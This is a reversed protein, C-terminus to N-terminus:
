EVNGLSLAMIQKCEVNKNMYNCGMQVDDNILAILRNKTVPKSYKWGQVKNIGFELVLSEDRDSEIGEFVIEDSFKRIENILIKISCKFANNNHMANFLSRDLKVCDFRFESLIVLSSNGTSFDDLSFKVSFDNRIETIFAIVENKHKPVISETIEFELNKFFTNKALLKRLDRKFDACVISESSLNISFVIDFLNNVKIFEITKELVMYDLEPIRGCQELYDVFVQPSYNIGNVSLRALAEAGYIKGINLDFKPQYNVDFSKDELAKNIVDKIINRDIYEEVEKSEEYSYYLCNDNLSNAYMAEASAILDLKMNDTIKKVGCNFIVQNKGANIKLMELERDIKALSSGEHFTVFHDGYIRFTKESLSFNNRLIHAFKKIVDNAFEVGELKKINELNAISIYSIYDYKNKKHYMSMLSPNLLKTAPDISVKKYYTYLFFFFLISLAVYSYFDRTRLAIEGEIVSQLTLDRAHNGISIYGTNNSIDILSNLIYLLSNSENNSKPVLFVVSKLALTKAIINLSPDEAFLLRGDLDTSIFADIEGQKFSKIIEDQRSYEIYEASISRLDQPMSKMIGIRKIENVRTNKFLVIRVLGLSKTTFHTELAAPDYLAMKVDNEYSYFCDDDHCDQDILNINYIKEALSKYKTFVLFDNYKDGYFPFLHFNILINVRKGNLSKVTSVSLYQSNITEFSTNDISIIAANIVPLLASSKSKIVAIHSSLETSIPMKLSHYNSIHSSGSVFLSTKNLETISDVLKIPNSLGLSALFVKTLEIWASGKLTVIPLGSKLQEMLRGNSVIYPTEDSLKASFDLYEHRLKTKSLDFIVDISEAKALAVLEILPKEIIQTNMGSCRELSQTIVEYAFNGDTMKRTYLSDSVIGIKIIENDYNVKDIVTTLGCRAYAPTIFIFYLLLYFLHPSFKYFIPQM